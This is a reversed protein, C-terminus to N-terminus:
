DVGPITPPPPLRVPKPAAQSVVSALVGGLLGPHLSGAAKRGMQTSKRLQAAIGRASLAGLQSVVDGWEVAQLWDVKQPVYEPRSGVEEESPNTYYGRLPPEPLLFKAKMVVGENDDELAAALVSIQSLTVAPVALVADVERGNGTFTYTGYSALRVSRNLLLDARSFRVTADRMDWRVASHALQVSRVDVEGKQTSSLGANELHSLLQEVWGGAHQLRVAHQPRGPISGSATIAAENPSPRPFLRLRSSGDITLPSATAAPGAGAMIIDALFPHVSSLQELAEVGATTTDQIEVTVSMPSDAPLALALQGDAMSAELKLRGKSRVIVGRGRATISSSAPNGGLLAFLSGEWALEAEALGERPCSLAARQRDSTWGIELALTVGSPTLASVLRGDDASLLSPAAATAATAVAGCAGGARAALRLM